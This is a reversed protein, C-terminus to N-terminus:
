KSQTFAVWLIIFKYYDSRPGYNWVDDETEGWPAPGDPDLLDELDYKEEFEM